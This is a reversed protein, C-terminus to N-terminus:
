QVIVLTARAAADRIWARVFYVGPDLAGPGEAPVTWHVSQEGAPYLGEALRVLERGSVSYVGARVAAERAPISLRLELDGGRRVPNPRLAIRAGGPLAPNGVGVHGSSVVYEAYGSQSAGSYPCYLPYTDLGSGANDNSYRVCLGITAGPMVFLDELDGDNLPHSMELFNGGGVTAAAGVGNSHLDLVGWSTGSFHADHFYGDGTASIEDDGVDTVDDNQSDIRVGFQDGPTLTADPVFLGFYLNVNDDMVYLQSGVLGSFVGVPTAVNWEGPSPIGDITATGFATPIFSAPAALAASMLSVLGAAAIAAVLAMTRM